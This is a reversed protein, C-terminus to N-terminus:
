STIKTFQTKYSTKYKTQLNNFQNQLTRTGKIYIKQLDQLKQLIQSFNIIGGGVGM